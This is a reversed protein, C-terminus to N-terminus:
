QEQVTHINCVLAYVVPPTENVKNPDVTALVSHQAASNADLDAREQRMESYQQVGNRKVHVSDKSWLSRYVTPMAIPM